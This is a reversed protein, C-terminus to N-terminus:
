LRIRKGTQLFTSDCQKLSKNRISRQKSNSFYPNSNAGQIAPLMDIRPSISSKKVQLYRLANPHQDSDCKKLNRIFYRLELKDRHLSVLQRHHESSLAHLKKKLEMGAISNSM